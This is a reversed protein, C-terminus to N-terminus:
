LLFLASQKLWSDDACGLGVSPRSFLNTSVGPSTRRPIHWTCATDPAGSENRTCLFHQVGLLLLANMAVLVAAWHAAQKWILRIRADRDDTEGWATHVCALGTMVGMFEWYGILPQRSINTYAVGIIALAFIALFPLQSRLFSRKWAGDDRADQGSPAELEAMSSGNSRRSDGGSLDASPVFQLHRSSAERLYVAGEDYRWYDPSVRIFVSLLDRLFAM